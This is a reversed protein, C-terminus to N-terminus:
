LVSKTMAIFGQAKADFNKCLEGHSLLDTLDTM